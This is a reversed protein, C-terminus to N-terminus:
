TFTEGTLGKGGYIVWEEVLDLGWFEEKNTLMFVCVNEPLQEVIEQQDAVVPKEAKCKM